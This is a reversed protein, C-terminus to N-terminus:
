FENTLIDVTNVQTHHIIYDFEPRM